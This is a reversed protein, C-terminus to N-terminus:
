DGADHDTAPAAIGHLLTARFAALPDSPDLLGRRSARALAGLHASIVSVIWGAPPESAVAGERQGRTVLDTLETRIATYEAAPHDGTLGDLFLAQYRLAIEALATLVRDLARDAPGVAPGAATLAAHSEVAARLRLGTLLEARTPFRRYVTARSVGAAAAIEETGVDPDQALLAAAADLVARENGAADARLGRGSERGAEGVM